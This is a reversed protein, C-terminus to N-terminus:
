ATSTKTARKSTTKLTTSKDASIKAFHQEIKAALQRDTMKDSAEIDTIRVRRKKSKLRKIFERKAEGPGVVLIANAERICSTVEKYFADLQSLAKKQLTDEAAFDNKTYKHKTKIHDPRQIGSAIKKITKGTDAILVVVAQRHDIWIGAKIAM